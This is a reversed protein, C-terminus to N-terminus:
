PLPAQGTAAEVLALRGDVAQVALDPLLGPLADLEATEDRHLRRVPEAACGGADDLVEVGHADDVRGRARRGAVGDDVVDAARRGVRPPERRVLEVVQRQGRGPAPELRQPGERLAVVVSRLIVAM